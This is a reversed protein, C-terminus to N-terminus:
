YLEVYIPGEPGQMCLRQLLYAYRLLYGGVCNILNIITKEYNLPSEPGQPSGMLLSSSKRMCLSAFVHVPPWPVGQLVFAHILLVVQKQHQHLLLDSDRLVDASLVAATPKWCLLGANLGRQCCLSISLARVQAIPRCPDRLLPQPTHYLAQHEAISQM